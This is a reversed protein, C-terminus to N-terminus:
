VYLMLFVCVIWACVAAALGPDTFLQETPDGPTTRTEAVFLYRLIGYAVFPTSFLMRTGHPRRLIDPSLCYLVYALITLGAFMTICQTLFERTYVAYVSRHAQARENLYSMEYKRKCFALFLALLFVCAQLWESPEISISAAGAWIRLQFGLAIAFVDILVWHKLLLSYVLNLAVYGGILAIVARQEVLIGVYVAAALCLISAVLAVRVPLEGNACPRNSKVPHERDRSRDLVDNFLYLGAAAACFAAASTLAAKVSAPDFVRGGFVLPAMVFVSKVLQAPRMGRVLARFRNQM